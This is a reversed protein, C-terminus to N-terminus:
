SLAQAAMTSVGPRLSREAYRRPYIPADALLGGRGSGRGFHIDPAPGGHIGNRVYNQDGGAVGPNRAPRTGGSHGSGGSPPNRTGGRLNCRFRVRRRLRRDVPLAYRGFHRRGPRRLARRETGRSRSGAHGDRPRPGARARIGGSDLRSNRGVADIAALSGADHDRYWRDSVTSLARHPQNDPRKRDLQDAAMMPTLHLGASLPTLGKVMQMYLPLYTVSGFMALGAVLSVSACVTFIRISFLHMPFMPADARREVVVFLIFSIISAAGLAIATLSMGALTHGGLSTLLILSTLCIALLLAGAYDISPRAGVAKRPLVVGIILVAAVGLPLYIYFIWRWTLHDVMFGGILPGLVTSLGFIAGFLGQYRGRDKPPIIDGVVAMTTVMLGGGGLGQLARFFILQVMSNSMGCLVSGLLFLVIAAQLVLKRGFLDGLKGYLPTVVTTALMYSTVIWSLHELGGFEGVITPLATSVITQDLSALLMVVMPAVFVTRVGTPKETGAEMEDGPRRHHHFGSSTSCTGLGGYRNFVVKANISKKNAIHSSSM